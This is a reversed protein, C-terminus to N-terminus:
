ESAEEIARAVAAELKRLDARMRLIQLDIYRLAEARSKGSALMKIDPFMDFLVATGDENLNRETVAVDAFILNEYEKLTIAIKAM